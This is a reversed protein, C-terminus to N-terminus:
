FCGNAPFGPQSSVKRLEGAGSYLYIGHEGGFWLGHSDAVLMYNGKPLDIVKADSPGSVLWVSSWDTIIPHGALDTGLVSLYAGPESYWVETMGDSITLRQVRSPLPFGIASPQPNPGADTFWFVGPGGAVPEIIGPVSRDQLLGTNLDLLFLGGGPAEYGAGSLWIGEPAVAVVAYASLDRASGLEYVKDNGTSVDILDLRQQGATGPVKPDLNAYRAGDSSVATRYVPLWRAVARDYYVGGVGNADLTVTGSPFSVFAGQLSGQANVIAIPLRCSGTSTSPASASQGPQSCAAIVIALLV